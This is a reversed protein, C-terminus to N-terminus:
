IAWKEPEDSFLIWPTVSSIKPGTMVLGDETSGSKGGVKANWTSYVPVFLKPSPLRKGPFGGDPDKKKGKSLGKYGPSVVQINPKKLGTSGVFTSADTIFVTQSRLAM